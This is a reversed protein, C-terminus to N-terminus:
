LALTRCTEFWATGDSIFKITATKSATGTITGASRFNTGFTIVKGSTADNGIIITMEEGAIGSSNANITANGTAHITTTKHVRALSTDLTITSAYAMTDMGCLILSTGDWFLGNSTSGNGVRLVYSTGRLGIYIGTGAGDADMDGFRIRERVGEIHFKNYDFSQPSQNMGGPAQGATNQNAPLPQVIEQEAALVPFKPSINM